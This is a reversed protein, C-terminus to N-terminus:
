WAQMQLSKPRQMKTHFCACKLWKEKLSIRQEDGFAFPIDKRTLKRLLKTLNAFHPIFQSIFNVIGIFSCFVTVSKPEKTEIVGRVREKTPGIGKQSLLVGMFVLRDISFQSKDSNITLGCQQLRELTQHLRRDDTNNDTGHIIIDNSINQAIEIGAMITAIEYQYQEVATKVSFLLREYRYLGGPIASTNIERSKHHYGWKLSAIKSFVTSGNMTDLLEDVTPIPYRTALSPEVGRKKPVIIVRNVWPAPGEVPEIIDLKVLEM